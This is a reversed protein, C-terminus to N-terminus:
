ICMDWTWDPTPYPVGEEDFIRKNFWVARASANDLHGYVRGELVFLNHLSPWVENVDIGRRALEETCDLAIGSRVFASLQYGNYCDFLDPGVGALSQVIVKEMGTNQPDLRLRYKPYLRNFLEIQGRRVPNDDSCWILEIRTDDHRPQWLWAVVSLCLLVLFGSLFVYKM